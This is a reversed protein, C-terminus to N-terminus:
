ARAEAAGHVALAGKLKHYLEYLKRIPEKESKSPQSPARRAGCVLSDVPAIPPPPSCAPRVMRGHDAFFRADFAKLQAKVMKKEHILSAVDRGSLDAGDDVDGAACHPLVITSLDPARRGPRSLSLRLSASSVRCPGVRRHNVASLKNESNSEEGSLKQQVDHLKGRLASGRYFAQIQIAAHDRINRKWERYQVYTSALPARDAGKPAHGHQSIFDEEFRFVVRVILGHSVVYRGLPRIQECRKIQARLTRCATVMRRRERAGAAITPEWTFFVVSAEGAIGRASLPLRIAYLISFGHM